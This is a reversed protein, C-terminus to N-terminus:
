VCELHVYPVLDTWNGLFIEFVIEFGIGSLCIGSLRDMLSSYLLLIELGMGPPSIGIIRDM